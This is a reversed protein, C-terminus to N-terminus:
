LIPGLSMFGALVHAGESLIDGELPGARGRRRALGTERGVISSPRWARQAVIPASCFVFAACPGAQFVLTAASILDLQDRDFGAHRASCFLLGLCPAVQSSGCSVSLTRPRCRRRALKNHGVLDEDREM